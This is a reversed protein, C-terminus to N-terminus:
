INHTAYPVGGTTHSMLLEQALNGIGGANLHHYLAMLGANRSVTFILLLPSHFTEDGVNQAPMYNYTIALYNRNKCFM